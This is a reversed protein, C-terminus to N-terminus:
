LGRDELAQQLIVSLQENIARKVVDEVSGVIMHCLANNDENIFRKLDMIFDRSIEEDEFKFMKRNRPDKGYWIALTIGGTLEKGYGIKLNRPENSLKDIYSFGFSPNKDELKGLEDCFVSVKRYNKSGDYNFDNGSVYAFVEVANNFDKVIVGEENKIKPIIKLTVTDSNGVSSMYFNVQLISKDSNYYKRFM